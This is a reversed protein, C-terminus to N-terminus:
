LSSRLTTFLYQCHKQAKLALTQHRPTWGVVGYCAASAACDPTVLSLLKAHHRYVQCTGHSPSTLLWFQQTPPESKSSVQFQSPAAGNPGSARSTCM